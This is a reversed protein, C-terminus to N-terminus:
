RKQLVVRFGIHFWPGNPDDVGQYKGRYYGPDRNSVREHDGRYITSNFYSGGRLGHYPLSDPMPDGATPGPPDQRPSVEYYNRAYWDNVWEWVNGAMDCLGYANRGDLTQYGAEASPWGYDGRQRLSGDFFCVPTTRPESGQEWPDGSEVWNVRADDRTDGWPYDRYPNQQGGRGAYEWEAETPLRICSGTWDTEGKPLSYCPKLGLQAGYWNSFVAAGLWRV